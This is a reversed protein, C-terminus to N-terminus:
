SLHLIFFFPEIFQRIGDGLNVGRSEAGIGDFVSRMVVQQIKVFFHADHGVNDQGKKGMYASYVLYLIGFLWAPIPFPIPFVFIGGTPHFLISAFLVASVAGSAGVIAVNYKKSM